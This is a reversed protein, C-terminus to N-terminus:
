PAPLQPHLTRCTGGDGICTQEALIPAVDAGMEVCGISRRTGNPLHTTADRGGSWTETVLVYNSGSGTYPLVTVPDPVTGPPGPTVDFGLLEFKGSKELQLSDTTSPAAALLAACTVMSGDRATKSIWRTTIVGLTGPVVSTWIGAKYDVRLNVSANLVNCKAVQGCQAIPRDDLLSVGVCDTQKACAMGCKACTGWYGADVPLCATQGACDPDECDTRGNHDDDIGNNCIERPKDAGSCAAFLLVSVGLLRLSM